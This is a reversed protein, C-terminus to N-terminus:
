MYTLKKLFLSKVAEAYSVLVFGACINQVLQLREVQLQYDPLPHYVICAYDQESLVLSESLEKREHLPVIPAEAEEASISDQLM